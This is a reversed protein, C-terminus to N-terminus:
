RLFSLLISLLPPRLLQTPPLFSLPSKETAKWGQMGKWVGKDLSSEARNRLRKVGPRQM